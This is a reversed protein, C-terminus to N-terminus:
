KVKNLYASIIRERQSSALKKRHMKISSFQYQGFEFSEWIIKM